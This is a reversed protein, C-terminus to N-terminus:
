RRSRGPVDTLFARDHEDVRGSRFTTLVTGGRAAM